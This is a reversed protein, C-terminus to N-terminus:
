INRNKQILTSHTKSFSLMASHCNSIRILNSTEAVTSCLWVVLNRRNPEWRCKLKQINGCPFFYDIENFENINEM